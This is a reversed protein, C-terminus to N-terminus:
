TGMFVADVQVDQRVFEGFDGTHSWLLQSTTQSDDVVAVTANAAEKWHLSTRIVTNVQWLEIPADVQPPPPQIGDGAITDYVELRYQGATVDLIDQSVLQNRASTPQRPSSYLLTFQDNKKKNNDTTAPHRALAWSIEQPFDDYHINVRLTTIATTTVQSTTTANLATPAVSMEEAAGASLITGPSYASLGTLEEPSPSVDEGNNSQEQLAPNSCSPPPVQSMACVQEQIWSYTAKTRAYIGPSDPRACGM